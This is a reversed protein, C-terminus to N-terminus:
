EGTSLVLLQKRTAELAIMTSFMQNYATEDTVPNTRQLKSKLTSITYMVKLLRLKAVYSIAYPRTVAIPHAEVALQVALQRLADDDIGDIVRHSWAAAPVAQPSQPAIVAFLARYAPNSYDDPTAGHWDAAFAEPNQLM